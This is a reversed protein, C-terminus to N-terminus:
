KPESDSAPRRPREDGQPRGAPGEGRPRRPSDPNLGQGDPRVGDPRQGDPRFGPGGPGGPGGLGFIGPPANKLKEIQEATLKPRFTAFAKAQIVSMEVQLEGLEKAHKKIAALDQKEAYMAESMARRADRMKEGLAGMEERHAEMAERWANRQEENLQLFDGRPAGDPRRFEGEPRRGGEPAPQDGPAREPRRPADQASALNIVLLLAAATPITLLRNTPKM